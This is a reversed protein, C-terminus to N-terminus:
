EKFMKKIKQETITEKQKNVELIAENKIIWLKNGLKTAEELDHTIMFIISKHQSAHQNILEVMKHTAQPDLAATPEDLLLIKPSTATAMLFAIMQRQGGSLEHMKKNIISHNFLHACKELLKPTQHVINLGNCLTATKNKLLALALNQKISLSLAVNQKPDQFLRSIFQSRKCENLTTISQQNLLLNGSKPFITGAILNLLTTKGSGNQGIIVIFDGDKVQQSLDKLIIHNNFSICINQLTLM